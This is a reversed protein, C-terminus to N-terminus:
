RTQFTVWEVKGDESVYLDDKLSFKRDGNDAQKVALYTKGPTTARLLEVVGGKNEPFFLGAGLANGPKGDKDEYIVIWTPVSLTAKEVAVSMGAGQSNLIQLGVGAGITTVGDTNVGLDAGNEGNLTATESTDSGNQSSTNVNTWGWALLGGAIVGAAIMGMYKSSPGTPTAPMNPLPNKVAALPAKTPQSQTSTKPTSTTPATTPTSWSLGSQRPPTAGGPKQSGNNNEQM